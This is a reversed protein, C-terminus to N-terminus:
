NNLIYQLNLDAIITAWWELISSDLLLVGGGGGGGQLFFFNGWSVTVRALVSPM